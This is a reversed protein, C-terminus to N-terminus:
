EKSNLIEDWLRELLDTKLGDFEEDLDDLAKAYKDDEGSASALQKQEVADRYIREAEELYSNKLEQELEHVRNLGELKKKRLMGEHKRRLAAIEKDMTYLALGFAEAHDKGKIADASKEDSIYRDSRKLAQILRGEEDDDQIEKFMMFIEDYGELMDRVKHISRHNEIAGSFYFYNQSVATMEKTEELKVLNQLQGALHHIWESHHIKLGEVVKELNSIEKKIGAKKNEIEDLIERPTGTYNKPIVIEKFSLTRLVRSIEQKHNEPYIILYVEGDRASGTYQVVALINEYDKKLKHRNDRTLIGIKFDFYRMDRLEDISTEFKLIEKFSRAHFRELYDIEERLAELMRCPDIVKDKLSDLEDSVENVDMGKGKYPVENELEFGLMSALERAKDLTKEAQINKKYSSAFNIDVLRDVNENNIDLLFNNQQILEIASLPRVHNTKIIDNLIRDLDQIKGIVNIMTSKKAAM